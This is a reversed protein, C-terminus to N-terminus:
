GSTNPRSQPTISVDFSILDKQTTGGEDNIERDLTAIKAQANAQFFFHIQCITFYILIEVLDRQLQQNDAKLTSIHQILRKNEANQLDFRHHVEKKFAIFEDNIKELNMQMFKELRSSMRLSDESVAVINQYTVNDVEVQCDVASELATVRKKLSQTPNLEPVSLSNRLTQSVEFKSIM